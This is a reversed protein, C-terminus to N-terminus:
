RFFQAAGLRQLAAPRYARANLWSTALPSSMHLWKTAYIEAHVVNKFGQGVWVAPGKEILEMEAIALSQILKAPMEAHRSLANGFMKTEQDSGVQDNRKPPAPFLQVIEVGRRQLLNGFTPDVFM